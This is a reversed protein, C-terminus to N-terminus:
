FQFLLSKKQLQENRIIEDKNSQKRQLRVITNRDGPVSAFQSPRDEGPAAVCYTLTTGDFQCIAKTHLVTSDLDNTTIMDLTMPRGAIAHFTSKRQPKRTPVEVLDMSLM